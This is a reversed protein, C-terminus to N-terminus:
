VDIDMISITNRIDVSSNKHEVYKIFDYFNDSFSRPLLRVSKKYRHEDKYIIKWLRRRNFKVSTLRISVIDKFNVKSEQGKFKIYLYNNDFELHRFQRVSFLISSCVILLISLVIAETKELDKIIWERILLTLFVLCLLLLFISVWTSKSSIRRRVNFNKKNEYFDM